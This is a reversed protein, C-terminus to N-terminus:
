SRLTASFKDKLSEVIKSIEQDAEKVSLTKNLDELWIHFAVSKKGSGFKDSSFEDFAEVLVAYKSTELILDRIESLSLKEDVIFALDRNVPPFKSVERYSVPDESSVFDAETGSKKMAEVILGADLEFVFVNPKKIKYKALEDRSFEKIEFVNGDLGTKDALTKVCSELVAKAGKGSSAVAIKTKESETSREVEEIKKEPYDSVTPEEKDINKEFSGFINGFEFVLIPDFTPNKAVVRMLGPVLSNRMFKNESQVPNAVELLDEPNLGITKIDAESLFPYTFVEAFGQAVLIDKLAEKFYYDATKPPDEKQMKVM